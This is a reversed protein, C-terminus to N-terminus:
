KQFSHTCEQSTYLLHLKTGTTSDQAQKRIIKCQEQVSVQRDLHSESERGISKASKALYICVLCVAIM